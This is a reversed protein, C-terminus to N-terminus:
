YQEKINLIKRLDKAKTLILDIRADKYPVAKRDKSIFDDGDDNTVSKRYEILAFRTREKKQDIMRALHRFKQLIKLTRSHNNADTGHSCWHDVALDEIDQILNSQSAKLLKNERFLYPVFKILVYTAITIVAAQLNTANLWTSM